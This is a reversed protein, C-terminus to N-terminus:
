SRRLSGNLVQSPDFRMPFADGITTAYVYGDQGLALLEVTPDGGCNEWIIQLCHGCPTCVDVLNTPAPGAIRGPDFVHQKPAGVTAVRLIKAPRAAERLVMADVASQEAHTTQTYTVREVNCGTYFNGSAALVAAGVCYNSYPAQAMQRASVAHRLLLKRDLDLEDWTLIKARVVLQLERM